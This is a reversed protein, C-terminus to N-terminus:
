RTRLLLLAIDDTSAEHPFAHHVLSDAPEDLPRDGSGTLHRALDAISETLDVGPNEVRGDTSLALLSGAPLPSSTVPYASDIGLGLPGPEVELVRTQAM